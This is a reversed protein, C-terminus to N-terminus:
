YLGDWREPDEHTSSECASSLFPTPDWDLRPTRPAPRSVRVHKFDRPTVPAWSGFGNGVDIGIMNM